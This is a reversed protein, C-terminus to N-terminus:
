IINYKPTLKYTNTKAKNVIKYIYIKYLNINKVILMTVVYVNV